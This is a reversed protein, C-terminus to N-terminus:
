MYRYNTYVYYRSANPLKLRFCAYSIKMIMKIVEFHVKYPNIFIIENNPKSFARACMVELEFEYEYKLSRGSSYLNNVQQSSLVWLVVINIDVDEQYTHPMQTERWQFQFRDTKMTNMQQQRLVSFFVFLKDKSAFVIDCNIGPMDRISEIILEVQDVCGEQRSRVFGSLKQKRKKKKKAQALRYSYLHVCITKNIYKTQIGNLKTDIWRKTNVVDVIKKLNWKSRFIWHAYRNKFETGARKLTYFTNTPIKPKTKMQSLFFFCCDISSCSDSFWSSRMSTWKHIVFLFFCVFSFEYDCKFTELLNRSYQKQDRVITRYVKNM